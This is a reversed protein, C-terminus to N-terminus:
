DFLPIDDNSLERPPPRSPAAPPLAPAAAPATVPLAAAAPAPRERPRVFRREGPESARPLPTERPAPAAPPEPAPGPPPASVAAAVPAPSPTRPSPAVTRRVQARGKVDRTAAPLEERHLMRLVVGGVLATSLAGAAGLKLWRPIQQRVTLMRTSAAPPELRLLARQSGTSPLLSLALAESPVKDLEEGSLQVRAAMIAEAHQALYRGLAEGVETMAPRENPELETMRAVLASLDDPFGPIVERLPTPAERVQRLMVAIADGRFPLKGFFALYMMIGLAYVDSRATVAGPSTIQEPAMFSPTGLLIGTKTHPIEDTEPALTGDTVKAIGFDLVKARLGGPVANDAIVMVNSPKLDRHVVGREHVAALAAGIQQFLIVLNAIPLRPQRRILVSLAVGDLYEMVIYFLGTATQGFEFINIIGAHQIQNVLRAENIFRQSMANENMIQPNLVKIVVRKDISSNVALYITSMGGEALQKVIRYAGISEGLALTPKGTLATSIM